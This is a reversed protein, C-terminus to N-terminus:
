LEDFPDAITLSFQFGVYTELLIWLENFPIFEGDVVVGGYSINGKLKDHSLTREHGDVTLYRTALGERIKGRLHGLAFFPDTPSYAAFSYGEDNGSRRRETARLFYGRPQAELEVVFERQKGSFDPFSEVIPFFEEASQEDEEHM